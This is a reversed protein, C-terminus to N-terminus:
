KKIKAIEKITAHKQQNTLWSNMGAELQTQKETATPAASGRSLVEIIHYGYMSKILTPQHLPLTFSAHDFAPVMQHPHITGLDGGKSASGTDDSYKEAMKAFSAGHHIKALVTLALAKAQAATRA